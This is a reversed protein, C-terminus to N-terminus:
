HLRRSFQVNGAFVEGLISGAQKILLLCFDADVIM